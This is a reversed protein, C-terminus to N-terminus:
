GARRDIGLPITKATGRRRQMRADGHREFLAYRFSKVRRKGWPRRRDRRSPRRSTTHVGKLAAAKGPLGEDMHPRIERTEALADRFPAYQAVVREFPRKEAASIHAVHLQGVTEGGTRHAIQGRAGSSARRRASDATAKGAPFASGGMSRQRSKSEKRRAASGTPRNTDNPAHNRKGVGHRGGRARRLARGREAPTGTSGRRGRERRAPPRKLLAAACPKPPSSVRTKARASKRAASAHVLTGRDDEREPPHPNRVPPKKLPLGGLLSRGAAGIKAPVNAAIHGTTYKKRAASSKRLRKGSRPAAMQQIKVGSMAWRSLSSPSAARRRPAPTEEAARRPSRSTSGRFKYPPMAGDAAPCRLAAGRRRARSRVSGVFVGHRERASERRELEADRRLGLREREASVDRAVTPRRGM